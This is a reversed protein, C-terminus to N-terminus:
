CDPQTQRESVKINLIAM